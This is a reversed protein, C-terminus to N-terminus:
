TALDELICKVKLTDGSWDVIRTPNAADASRIPGMESRGHCINDRQRHHAVGTEGTYDMGTGRKVVVRMGRDAETQSSLSKRFASWYDEPRVGDAVQPELPASADRHFGGPAVWGTMAFALDRYSREWTRKRWGAGSGVLKDTTTHFLTRATSGSIGVPPTRSFLFFQLLLVQLILCPYLPNFVSVDLFPM